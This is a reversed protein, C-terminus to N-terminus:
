GNRHDINLLEVRDDLHIVTSSTLAEVLKTAFTSKGAGGFGSLAIVCPPITTKDQIERVLQSTSSIQIM